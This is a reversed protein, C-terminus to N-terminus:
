NSANTVEKRYEKFMLPISSVVKRAEQTPQITIATLENNLDPEYFKSM